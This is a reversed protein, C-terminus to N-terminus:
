YDECCSTTTVGNKGNRFVGKYVSGFAGKGILNEASFDNTALQIDSYSIKPPFAKSLPTMSNTGRRKKKQKPLAADLHYLSHLNVSFHQCSSDCNHTRFALQVEIIHPM